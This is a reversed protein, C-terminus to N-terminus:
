SANELEQLDSVGQDLDDVFLSDNEIATIDKEDITVNAPNKVKETGTCGFLLIFVIALATILKKM